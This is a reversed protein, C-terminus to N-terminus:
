GITPLTEGEQWDGDIQTGVSIDLPGTHNRHLLTNLVDVAAAGLADRRYHIGVANSADESTDLSVYGMDEPVSIGEAKAAELFHTSRSIVAQPRYKRLWRRIDSVENPTRVILTPIVDSDAVNMKTSVLHAAEWQYSWRSAIEDQLVLGVRRYGREVLKDWCNILDMYHNQVVHHFCTYRSPRSITVVSFHKWEIDITDDNDEFPALILGRIGRARLIQTFRKGTAGGEKAWFLQLTYGLEIARKKAGQIVEKQNAQGSWGDKTNWNTVMGIVSYDTHVKRKNRYASLASLAPDPSYGMEGAIRKVREITQKSMTIDNNLAMSVASVSLNAEKAIDKLRVRKGPENLVPDEQCTTGSNPPRPNRCFGYRRNNNTLIRHQSVFKFQKLLNTLAGTLRDSSAFIGVWNM